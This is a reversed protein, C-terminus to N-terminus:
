RGNCSHGYRTGNEFYALYQDFVGNKEYGGQLESQLIGQFRNSKKGLTKIYVTHTGSSNPLAFINGFLELRHRPHLLTVSLRCVSSLRCFSLCAM